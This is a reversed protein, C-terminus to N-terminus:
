TLICPPSFAGTTRNQADSVGERILLPQTKFNKILIIKFKDEM